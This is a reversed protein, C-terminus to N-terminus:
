KAIGYLRITGTNEFSGSGPYFKVGTCATDFTSNDGIGSCNTPTASHAATSGLWNIRKRNNVEDPSSLYVMLECSEGDATGLESVLEIHDGAAIVSGSYSSSGSNFRAVHSNYNSGADLSGGLLMQARLDSDADGRVNTLVFVYMDYTSSLLTSSGMTVSASTGTATSELLVWGPHTGTVALNGAITTTSAAGAGITVDVEANDDPQGAIELGKTLTADNEAVYFRLSAAESGEASDTIIADMYALREHTNDDDDTGYWSITGMVDNDAGSASDKNFRIEGATAGAHTNTIHLIPKSATASTLTMDPTTVTLSTGSNMVLAGDGSAYIEEGGGIDHFKLKTTLLLGLEDESADYHLGENTTASYVRVDTGTDDVGVILGATSGLIKMGGAPPSFDWTDTGDEDYEIYADSGTGFYLKVDDTILLKDTAVQLPIATSTDGDTIAVLTTGNLGGSPLSLLQDYTTAVSSGTLSAM